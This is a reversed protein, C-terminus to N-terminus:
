TQAALRRARGYPDPPPPLPSLWAVTLALASLLFALLTGTLAPLGAVVGGVGLGVLVNDPPATVVRYVVLGTLALGGYSLILTWARGFSRDRGEKLRDWVLSFGAIGIAMLPVLNLWFRPLTPPPPPEAVPPPLSALTTAAGGPTAAVVVGASSGFGSPAGGPVATPQRTPLALGGQAVAPAAPASAGGAAGAPATAAPQPLTSGFGTNGGSPAATPQRTPLALGGQGIAPAAATTRAGSRSAAVAARSVLLSAENRALAVGSLQTEGVGSLSATVWPQYFLVLAVVGCLAAVYRGVHNRTLPLTRGTDGARNPDVSPATAVAM